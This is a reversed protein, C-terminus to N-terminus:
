FYKIKENEFEAQLNNLENFDITLYIKNKFNELMNLADNIMNKDFKTPQNMKINEEEQNIKDQFEKIQNMLQEKLSLINQPTISNIINNLSEKLPTLEFVNNHNENLKDEIEQLCEMVNKGNYQLTNYNTNDQIKNKIQYLKSELDNKQFSFNIFEEDRKFLINENNSYLNVNKEIQQHSPYLERKVVKILNKSFNIKKGQTELNKIHIEGINDIM